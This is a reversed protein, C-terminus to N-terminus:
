VQRLVRWHFANYCVLISGIFCLIVNEFPALKTRNTIHLIYFVRIFIFESQEYQSWIKYFM